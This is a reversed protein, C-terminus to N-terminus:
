DETRMRQKIRRTLEEKFDQELTLLKVIKEDPIVTKFKTVYRTELEYEQKRIALYENLLGTPSVTGSDGKSRLNHLKDRLSERDAEYENYVPWFVQAESSSLNLKQTIFGIKQTKIRERILESRDQGLTYLSLTMMLTFFLYKM